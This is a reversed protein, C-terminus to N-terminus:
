LTYFYSCNGGEEDSSINVAGSVRVVVKRRMFSCKEDEALYKYDSEKELGGPLNM